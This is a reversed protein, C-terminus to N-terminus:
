RTLEWVEKGKDLRSQESFKLPELAGFSDTTSNHKAYFGMDMLTGLIANVRKTSLAKDALTRRIAPIIYSHDQSHAEPTPEPSPLSSEETETGLESTFKGGLAVLVEKAEDATFGQWSQKIADVQEATYWKRYIIDPLTKEPALKPTRDEIDKSFTCQNKRDTETINIPSSEEYSDFDDDSNAIWKIKVNENFRTVQQGPQLREFFAGKSIPAGEKIDQRTAQPIIDMPGTRYDDETFHPSGLNVGTLFDRERQEYSDLHTSQVPITSFDLDHEHQRVSFRELPVTHTARPQKHNSTFLSLFSDKISQWWSTTTSGSSVCSYSQGNLECHNMQAALSEPSSSVTEPQHLSLATSFVVNM